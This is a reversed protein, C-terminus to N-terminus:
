DYFGWSRYTEIERELTGKPSLYHAKADEKTWGSTLNYGTSGNIYFWENGEEDKETSTYYIEAM